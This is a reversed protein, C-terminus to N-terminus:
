KKSSSKKDSVKSTEKDRKGLYYLMYGGVCVSIVAFCQGHSFGLWDKPTDRLFELIFRFVGYYVMIFFYLRGTTEWFKEYLLLGFMILIDIVCETIQAPFVFSIDGVYLRVGGCCDSLYCGVRLVALMLMLSPSIFDMLKYYDQKLIRALLLIASPVLFVSGFFSVGGFRIGSSLLVSPQEIYYLMKAGIFSIAVVCLTLLVSNLPKTGKRKGRFCNMVLMAVIGLAFVTWYVSFRLGFLEFTEKM